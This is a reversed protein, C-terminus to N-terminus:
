SSTVRCKNRNLWIWPNKQPNAEPHERILGYAIRMSASEFFSLTPYLTPLPYSTALIVALKSSDIVYM